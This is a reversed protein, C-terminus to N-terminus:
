IENCNGGSGGQEREVAADIESLARPRLGGGVKMEGRAVGCAIPM